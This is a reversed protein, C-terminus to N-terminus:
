RSTTRRPSAGGHGGPSEGARRRPDRPRHGDDPQRRHGAGHVTGARRHRRRRGRRRRRHVRDVRRRARQRGPHGRGRRRAPEQVLDLVRAATVAGQPDTM